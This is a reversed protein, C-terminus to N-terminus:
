IWLPDLGWEDAVEDIQDIQGQHYAEESDDHSKDRLLISQKRQTNLYKKLDDDKIYVNSM